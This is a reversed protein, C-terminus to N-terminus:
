LEPPFEEPPVTGEDPPPVTDPDAVAVPPEYVTMDSFFAVLEPKPDAQPPFVRVLVFLSIADEPFSPDETFNAALAQDYAEIPVRINADSFDVVVPFSFILTDNTPVGGTIEGTEPDEEAGALTQTWFEIVVETPKDHFDLSDNFTNFYEISVEVGDLEPDSDWAGTVLSFDIYSLGRISDSKDLPDFPNTCATFGITLLLAALLFYANKWTM